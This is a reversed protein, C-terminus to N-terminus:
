DLRSQGSLRHWERNHYVLANGPEGPDAPREISAQVAQAAIVTSGGADMRSVIVCRLWARVGLYVPEGTSLQTWRTDDAFRNVGTTAGLRAIDIDDADLLHVVITPSATIAESASSLASVSFILLPPDVSVSSVSSATLAVPGNEGHATIVAVGGPHGRFLDKFVDPSVAPGFRGTSPSGSGASYEHSPSQSGTMDGVSIEVGHKRRASGCYASVCADHFSESHVEVAVSAVRSSM